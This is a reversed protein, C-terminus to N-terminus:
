RSRAFGMVISINLVQQPQIWWIPLIDSRKMVTEGMRPLRRFAATWGLVEELVVPICKIMKQLFIVHLTHPINGKEKLLAEM